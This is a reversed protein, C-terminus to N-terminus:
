GDVVALGGSPKLADAGRSSNVSQGSFAADTRTNTADAVWHRIAEPPGVPRSEFAPLKLTTWL